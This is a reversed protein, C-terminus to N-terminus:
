HSHMVTNSNIDLTYFVLQTPEIYQEVGRYDETHSSLTTCVHRGRSPGDLGLLWKPKSFFYKM